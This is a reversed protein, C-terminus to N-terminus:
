LYDQRELISRLRDILEWQRESVFTQAGWRDFRESMDLSFDGFWGDLLGDARSQAAAALIVRLEQARGGAEDARSRGAPAWDGGSTRAAREMEVGVTIGASYVEHLQERTLSGLAADWDLDHAAVLASLRSLAALREGDPATECCALRLLKAARKLESTM